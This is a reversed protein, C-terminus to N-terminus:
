KKLIVKILPGTCFEGWGPTLELWHRKGKLDLDNMIMTMNFSSGDHLKLPSIESLPFAAEYVIHTPSVRHVSLKVVDNLLEIERGKPAEYLFVEEGKKTLSLGWHWKDIFLEVSDAAWVIDGSYPQSYENDITDVAVYLNNKDWMVRVDSKLDKTDKPDFGYAYTVPIAEASSWDKLNGDFDPKKATHVAYAVPILDLKNEVKIPGGNKVKPIITEFSPVPFRVTKSSDTKIHVIAEGRQKPAAKVTVTEPSVHWGPPVKWKLKLDLAWDYPNDVFVKIDRDLSKGYPVQVPETKICKALNEMESVRSQTITDSEFFSGPKIGIYNVDNGRVQVMIYHAFGGKNEPTGTRDGGGGGSIFYHIGDKIGWDRYYHKHGAFVARVPYGKLLATIKKWSNGYDKKDFIPQHMMVFINEAKSEALVNKLWKLQKDSLVGPAQGVEETDLVIFQSNGYPLTYTTPGIRKTYIDETAKDSIDHGGVLPFFPPKIKAINKEFIDWQSDVGESAGGLILDGIVFIMSPKLVNWDKIMSYFEPQYKFSEGFQIDGIIVFDFSNRSVIPENKLKIMQKDFVTNAEGFCNISVTMILLVWLIYWKSLKIM